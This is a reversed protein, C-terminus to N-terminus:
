NFHIFLERIEPKFYLLSQTIKSEFEPFPSPRFNEIISLKGRREILNPHSHIGLARTYEGPHASNDTKPHAATGFTIRDFQVGEGVAELMATWIPTAGVDIGGVPNSQSM